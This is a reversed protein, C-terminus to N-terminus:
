KRTEFIVLDVMSVMRVMRSILSNTIFVTIELAKFIVFYLLTTPFLFLLITFAVTGVFLQDQSNYSTDIRKRLPNLKRGRFLRWLSALGRSQSLFLRRAYAYFCHVHFTAANFIDQAISLQLCIGLFPFAHMVASFGEAESVAPALLHLFTVWLHIHYLFFKGLVSSLTSNLKLGAPAGMLWKILARLSVIVSDMCELVYTLIHAASYHSKLLHVLLLGMAVDLALVVTIFMYNKWGASLKNTVQHCRSVVYSGTFTQSIINLIPRRMKDDTEM